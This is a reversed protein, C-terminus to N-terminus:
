CIVSVRSIRLKSLPTDFSGGPSVLGTDAGHMNPPRIM